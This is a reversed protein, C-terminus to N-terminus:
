KVPTEVTIVVTRNLFRGEPLSNDFLPTSGAGIISDAKLGLRKEVNRARVKSLIVNYEEEGTIDAYGKISIKSGPKIGAKIMDIVPFNRAQVDSKDFDFLILKYNRLIKDDIKKERKKRITLIDVAVSGTDSTFLSDATDRGTITYKLESGKRPVTEPAEEFYWDIEKPLTGAGSKKFDTRADDSYATIEWTKAEEPKQCDIYFKARPPNITRLTDTVEIPRFLSPDDSQIEVRRNEEAKMPEEIPTSPKEPLDRYKIEINSEDVGWVYVLYEKVREARSISLDINDKESGIGSNCGVVTVRKGSESLRKGILNLTQWHGDFSDASLSEISFSSTEDPTLRSYREAIHSSNEEFFIYNLVPLFKKSIYEEIKFQPKETIKGTEDIGVLRIGPKIVERPPILFTDVASIIRNKYITDGVTETEFEVSRAARRFVRGSTVAADVIYATDVRFIDQEIEIRQKIPPSYKLALGASIQGIHWPSNELMSTFGQMYFLEPQLLLTKKENIPLEYGAGLILSFGSEAAEPIDGAYENRTNTRTDTFIYDGETKEYQEYEANVTSAYRVGAHLNLNPLPRWILMPAFGIESIDALLNHSFAGRTPTYYKSYLTAPEKSTLDGSIDRFSARFGIIFNDNIPYEFLGGLSYGFGLGGTYKKCCSPISPLQMFDSSHVNIGAGGFIGARWQLSDASQVSSASIVLLIFISLLKKM